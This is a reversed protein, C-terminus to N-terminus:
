EGKEETVVELLDEPAHHHAYGARWGAERKIRELEDLHDLYGIVSPIYVVRLPRKRNPVVVETIRVLGAKGLKEYDEGTIGLLKRKSSPLEEYLDPIRCEAPACFRQM